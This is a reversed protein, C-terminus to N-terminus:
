CSCGDEGVDWLSVGAGQGVSGKCSDLGWSWGQRKGSAPEVPDDSDSKGEKDLGIPVKGGLPAPALERSVKAAAIVFEVNQGIPELSPLTIRPYVLATKGGTFHFPLPM